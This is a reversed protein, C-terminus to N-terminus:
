NGGETTKPLPPQGYAVEHVTLKDFCIGVQESSARRPRTSSVVSIDNSPLLVFVRAQVTTEPEIAFGTRAGM